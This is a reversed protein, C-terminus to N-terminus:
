HPGGAQANRAALSFLPRPRPECSHAALLARRPPVQRSRARRTASAEIPLLHEKKAVDAYDKADVGAAWELSIRKVGGAAGNRVCVRHAGADTATFAFKGSAAGACINKRTHTQRAPSAFATAARARRVVRVRNRPGVRARLTARCRRFKALLRWVTLCAGTSTYEREGAPGAITVELEAPAGPAPLPSVVAFAGKAVEHKTMVEGVCKTRGAEVDFALSGAAGARPLALLALAM